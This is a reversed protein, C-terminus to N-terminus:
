RLRGPRYKELAANLIAREADSLMYYSKQVSTPLVERLDDKMTETRDCDKSPSHSATFNLGSCMAGAWSHALVLHNYRTQAPADIGVNSDSSM